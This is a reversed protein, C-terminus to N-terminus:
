SRPAQNEYPNFTSLPVIPNGNCVGGSVTGAGQENLYGLEEAIEKFNSKKMIKNNEKLVKIVKKLIEEESIRRRPPRPLVDTGSPGGGVPSILSVNPRYKSPPKMGCSYPQRNTVIESTAPDISIVRFVAPTRQFNPDAKKPEEDFGTDNSDVLTWANGWAYTCGWTGNEGETTRVEGPYDGPGGFPEGLQNYNNPCPVTNPQNGPDITGFTGTVGMDLFEGNSGGVTPTQNGITLCAISRTFPKSTGPMCQQVQARRCTVGGYPDIPRECCSTDSFNLDGTPNMGDGGPDHSPFLVM